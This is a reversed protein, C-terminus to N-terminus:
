PQATGIATERTKAIASAYKRLTDVEEVVLSVLKKHIAALPMAYDITYECYDRNKPRPLRHGHARANLMTQLANAFVHAESPKGNDVGVPDIDRVIEKKLWLLREIAHTPTVAPRKGVYETAFATRAADEINSWNIQSAARPLVSQLYPLNGLIIRGNTDKSWLRQLTLIERSHPNKFAESIARLENILDFVLNVKRKGALTDVEGWYFPSNPIVPPGADITLQRSPPFRFHVLSSATNATNKRIEAVVEATKVATDGTTSNWSRVELAIPILRDGLKKRLARYLNLFRSGSIMEDPYLVPSNGLEVEAIFNKVAERISYKESNRPLRPALFEKVHVVIGEAELVRAMVQAPVTGGLPSDVITVKSHGEAVCWSTIEMAVRALQRAQDLAYQHLGCVGWEYVDVLSPPYIVDHDFHSDVLRSLCQVALFDSFAVSEAQPKGGRYIARQEIVSSIERAHIERVKATLYSILEEDVAGTYGNLLLRILAAAREPDAPQMLVDLEAPGSFSEKSEAEQRSFKRERKLRSKKGM